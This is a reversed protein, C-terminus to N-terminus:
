TRCAAPSSSTTAHREDRGARRLARGAAVLRVAPRRDHRARGRAPRRRALVHARHRRGAPRDHRRLRLRRGRRRGPRHRTREVLARSRTPASTPPTCRAALGGGQKGVPRACRTSSTPRPWASSRAPTPRHGPDRPRRPRPALRRRGLSRRAGLGAEHLPAPRVRDHLRDRRPVAARGARGAARRRRVGAGEGDVVHVSRTPIATPSRGRPGTCSRARRVRARHAVDALHHKVAQFSGIPVGFQRREKAYEVTM